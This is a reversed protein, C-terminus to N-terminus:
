FPLEDGDIAGLEGALYAQVEEALQLAAQAIEEKSAAYNDPRKGANRRSPIVLRTVVNSLNELRQEPSITAM